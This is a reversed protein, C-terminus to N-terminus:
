LAMSTKGSPVRSETRKGVSSILFPDEDGIVIPYWGGTLLPKRFTFRERPEDDPLQIMMAPQTFAPEDLLEFRKCLFVGREKIGDSVEVRVSALM